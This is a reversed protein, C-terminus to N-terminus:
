HSAIKQELKNIRQKLKEITKRDETIKDAYLSSLYRWEEVTDPMREGKPTLGFKRM